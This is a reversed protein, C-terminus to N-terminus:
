VYVGLIWRVIKSFGSDISYFIVAILSAFIVVYFFNFIVESIKPFTFHKSESKIKSFFDYISSFKM